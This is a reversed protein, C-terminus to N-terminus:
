YFFWGSTKYKENTMEAFVDKSYESDQTRNEFIKNIIEKKKIENDRRKKHFEKIDMKESSLEDMEVELDIFENCAIQYDNSFKMEASKMKKVAM